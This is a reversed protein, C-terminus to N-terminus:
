ISSQFSNQTVRVRRKKSVLLVHLYLVFLQEFFEGSREVDDYMSNDQLQEADKRLETLIKRGEVLVSINSAHM